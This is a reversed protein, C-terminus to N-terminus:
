AKFIQQEILATNANKNKFFGKLKMIKYFTYM